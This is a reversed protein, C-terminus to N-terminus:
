SANIPTTLESCVPVFLKYTPRLNSQSYNPSRLTIFNHNLTECVSQRTSNISTPCIILYHHWIVTITKVYKFVKRDRSPTLIWRLDFLEGYRIM